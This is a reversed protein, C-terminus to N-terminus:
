FSYSIGLYCQHQIDEATFTKDQLLFFRMIYYYHSRILGLSIGLRPNLAYRLYYGYEQIGRYESPGYFIKSIGGQTAITTNNWDDYIIGSMKYGFPVSWINHYFGLMVKPHPHITLGIVVDIKASNPTYDLCDFNLHQPSSVSSSFLHQATFHAGTCVGIIRQNYLFWESTYSLNM